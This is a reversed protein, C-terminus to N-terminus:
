ACACACDWAAPWWMWVGDMCVAPGVNFKLLTTRLRLGEFGVVASLYGPPGPMCVGVDVELLRTEGLKPVVFRLKEVVIALGLLVDELRM